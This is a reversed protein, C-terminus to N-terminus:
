NAGDDKGLHSVGTARGEGKKHIKGCKWRFVLYVAARPTHVQIYYGHSYLALCTIQANRRECVTNLSKMGFTVHYKLNKLTKAVGRLVHSALESVLSQVWLGRSQFRPTGVVPGHPFDQCPIKPQKIRQNGSNDRLGTNSSNTERILFFFISIITTLYIQM